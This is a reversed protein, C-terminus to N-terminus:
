RGCPRPHRAPSGGLSGMGSKSTRRWVRLVFPGEWSGAPNLISKWSILLGKTLGTAVAYPGSRAMERPWM